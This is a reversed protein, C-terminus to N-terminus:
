ENDYGWEKLTKKLETRMRSLRKSTNNASIHMSFAITNIPEFEYYRRMFMERDRPSQEELFKNLIDPLCMEDIVTNEVDMCCDLEESIEDYLTFTRKAATNYRIKDIVTRRMLMCVYSRISEPKKPPITNWVELFTDNMCEDTDCEDLGLNIAIRRMLAGFGKEIDSLVSSDRAELSSVIEETTYQKKM